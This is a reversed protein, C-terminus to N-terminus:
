FRQRGRLPGLRNYAFLIPQRWAEKFFKECRTILFGQGISALREGAAILASGKLMQLLRNMQSIASEEGAKKRELLSTKFLRRSIQRSRSSLFVFEATIKRVVPNGGGHAQRDGLFHGGMYPRVNAADQKGQGFSVLCLVSPRISNGAQLPESLQFRVIHHDFQRKSFQQHLSLASVPFNVLFDHLKSLSYLVFRRDM